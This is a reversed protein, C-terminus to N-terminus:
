GRVEREPVEQALSGPDVFGGIAPRGSDLELIEDLTSHRGQQRPDRQQSKRDVGFYASVGCLVARLELKAALARVLRHAVEHLVDEGTRRYGSDFIDLPHIVGGCVEQALEDIRDSLSGPEDADGPLGLGPSKSRSGPSGPSVM